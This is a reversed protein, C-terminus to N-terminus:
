PRSKSGVGFNKEREQGICWGMRCENENILNRILQITFHLLVFEKEVRGVAVIAAVHLPNCVPVLSAASYSVCDGLLDHLVCRCRDVGVLAFALAPALAAFFDIGVM